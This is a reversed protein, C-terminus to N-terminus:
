EAITLGNENGAATFADRLWSRDVGAALRRLTVTRDAIVAAWQPMDGHRLIFPVIALKGTNQDWPQYEAYLSEQTDLDVASIRDDLAAAFLAAAALYGADRTGLTLSSPSLFVHLANVVAHIDTAIQGPIPRGWVISNREAAQYVRNDQEAPSEQDELDHAPKFTRRKPGLLTKLGDLEYIGTYRVDVMVAVRGAEVHAALDEPLAGSTSILRGKPHLLVVVDCNRGAKLPSAIVAPLRFPGESQVVGKILRIGQAVSNERESFVGFVGGECPPLVEATGLLDPLQGSMVAAYDSWQQRSELRPAAHGYQKRYLQPAHHVGKEGSVEVTIETLLTDPLITEITEPEEPMAPRDMGRVYEDMWWYTRERKKRDYVHGTPWYGCYTREPKGNGAYTALIAPFNDYRFRATWDWMNLYGVAAPFGMASIEPHDTYRMYNPFHNCGCHTSRTFILERTDCTYGGIMAARIRESDLALIMQTQLGGGSMGCVGIRGNDVEQLSELLDIARMNHWVMLTQHSFGIPLDECHTQEPCFVVYGLKALMLCRKQVDVDAYAYPWHGHPALVAPAPLEVFTKPMYLVGRIYVGPWVQYALKIITCWPHNIPAAKHVDLPVREPLPDLGIDKLLRARLTEQREALAKGMYVEFPEPQSMLDIYDVYAQSANDRTLESEAIEVWNAMATVIVM